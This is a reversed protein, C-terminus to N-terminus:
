NKTKFKKFTKSVSFGLKEFILNFYKTKWDFYWTEVFFTAKRFYRTKLHYIRTRPWTVLAHLLSRAVLDFCNQFLLTVPPVLGSLSVVIGGKGGREWGGWLFPPLQELFKQSCPTELKVVSLTVSTFYKKLKNLTEWSNKATTKKFFVRGVSSNLFARFGKGRSNDSILSTFNWLNRLWTSETNSNVSNCVYRFVLNKSWSILNKLFSHCIGEM